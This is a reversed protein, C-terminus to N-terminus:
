WLARWLRCWFVGALLGFLDHKEKVRWLHGQGVFDLGDTDRFKQNESDM